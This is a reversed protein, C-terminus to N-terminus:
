GPTSASAQAVDTESLLSGMVPKLFKMRRPLRTSSATAKMMAVAKAVTTVAVTASIMPMMPLIPPCGSKLPQRGPPSGTPAQSVATIENRIM